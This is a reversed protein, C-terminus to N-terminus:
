ACGVKTTPDLKVQISRSISLAMPFPCMGSPSYRVSWIQLDRPERNHRLSEAFHFDKGCKSKWHHASQVPYKPLPHSESSSGSSSNSVSGSGSGSVFSSGPLLCEAKCGHCSLTTLPLTNIARQFESSTINYVRECLVFMLQSSYHAHRSM